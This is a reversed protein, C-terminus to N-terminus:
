CSYDCLHLSYGIQLILYNEFVSLLPICVEEYKRLIMDGEQHSKVGADQVEAMARLYRPFEETLPLHIPCNDIAIVKSVLGPSNLALTLATKAGRLLRM